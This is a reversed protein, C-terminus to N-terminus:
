ILCSGAIGIGAERDAARSEEDVTLFEAKGRYAKRIKTFAETEGNKVIHAINESGTVIHDLAEYAPM